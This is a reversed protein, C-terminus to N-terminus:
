GYLEIAPGTKRVWKETIVATPYRSVQIEEAELWRVMTLGHWSPGIEVVAGDEDIWEEGLQPPRPRAAGVANLVALVSPIAGGRAALAADLTAEDVTITFTIDPM